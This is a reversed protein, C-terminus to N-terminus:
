RRPGGVARSRSFTKGTLRDYLEFFGEVQTLLQADLDGLRRLRGRETSGDAVAVLRDNRYPRGGGDSQEAEIM